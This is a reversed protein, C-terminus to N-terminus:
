GIRRGDHVHEFHHTLLSPCEKSFVTMEQSKDHNANISNSTSRNMLEGREKKLSSWTCDGPAKKM